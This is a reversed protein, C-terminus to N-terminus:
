NLRTCIKSGNIETESVTVFNFVGEEVEELILLDKIDNENVFNVFFRILDDKRAGRTEDAVICRVNQESECDKIYVSPMYLSHIKNIGIVLGLAYQTEHSLLMSVVIDSIDEGNTEIKLERCKKCSCKPVGVFNINKLDEVGIDEIKMMKVVEQRIINYFFTFTFMYEYVKKGQKM